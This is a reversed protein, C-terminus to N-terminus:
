IMKNSNVQLINTYSTLSDTLSDTPTAIPKNRRGAV